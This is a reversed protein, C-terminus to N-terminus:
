RAQAVTRPRGLLEGLNYHTYRTHSAVNQSDANAVWFDLTDPAFLVSHINSTMCVPRTMLDRATDATFRGFGAKVRRVLEEYRDGASMLVADKFLHPLQPHPTGPLIVEFKTPTAAIGVARKAKADSIVYYYECTRPGRRMIDVAEDLTGAKEMVERMLQAMPKGDWNGEGRGGMEGIAVHKENMATVSGIFGAYSVNVWANGQDPQFVMVVANQELGVGKMYDLVRGHFMRGGVTADGYLAFGSCHFLEPFFNALRAEEKDIGVAAAIADMERLYREDMFPLLRKQAEEIEGFFWRGKAFSSGVGIGYLIREVVQRVQKKLLVGHQRGMEEPTGKLFLVKTGDIIELRGAGETALVRREGTAPGLTPIKQNLGAIASALFRTVHSLAVVQLNGSLNTHIREAAGGLRVNRFELEYEAGKADRYGIRAPLFDTERIWLRWNGPPLKLAEVAQPQAVANLVHCRVDDIVEAPQAELKMLLPLLALQERPLPLKVRPLTTLDIKEPATGFRAVGPKGIIGFDKAGAYLWLEQGDRGATYDKGDVKAALRLQDPAQWTVEVAQGLMEKPLGAARTLKLQGSFVQAPQGPLPEIVAGVKALSASLIEQPSKTDSAARLPLVALAFTLLCAFLRRNM